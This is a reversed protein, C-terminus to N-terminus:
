ALKSSIAGMDGLVKLGGVNFLGLGGGGGCNVNACKSWTTDGVSQWWRTGVRLSTNYSDYNEFFEMFWDGAPKYEDKKIKRSPGELEYLNEDVALSKVEAINGIDKKIYKKQNKTTIQTEQSLGIKKDRSKFARPVEPKKVVRKKSTFKDDFTIQENVIGNKDIIYTRKQGKHDTFQFTKLGKSKANDWALEFPSKSLVKKKQLRNIKAKSKQTFTDEQSKIENIAGNKDLVYMRKKGKQDIFDFTTKKNKVANDYALQFNSQKIPLKNKAQVDPIYFIILCLLFISFILADLSKFQKIIKKLSIV